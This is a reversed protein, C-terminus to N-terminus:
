SDTSSSNKSEISMKLKTKLKNNQLQKYIKSKLWKNTTNNVFIDEM